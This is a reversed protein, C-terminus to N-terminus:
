HAGKKCTGILNLAAKSPAVIGSQEQRITDKISRVMAHYQKELDANVPYEGMICHPFLAPTCFPDVAESFLLTYARQSKGQADHFITLVIPNVWNGNEDISEVLVTTTVDIAFARIPM